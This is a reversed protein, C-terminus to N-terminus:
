VRKCCVNPNQHPPSTLYGALLEATSAASGHLQVRWLQFLQLRELLLLLLLLLLL